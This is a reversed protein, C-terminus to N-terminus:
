RLLAFDRSLRISELAFRWLRDFFDDLPHDLFKELGITQHVLAKVFLAGFDAHLLVYALNGLLQPILDRNPPKHPKLHALARSSLCCPLADRSGQLGFQQSM